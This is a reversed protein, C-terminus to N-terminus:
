NNVPPAFRVSQEIQQTLEDPTLHKADGHGGAANLVREKVELNDPDHRKGVIVCYPYGILAAEALKTGASRDSTDLIVDGRLLSTAELQDYLAEGAAVMADAADRHRKGINGNLVIIAVRFPAIVAPWCVGHEDQKVEAMVSMLRSVGIGYCGM